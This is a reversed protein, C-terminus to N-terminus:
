KWGGKEWVKMTGVRLHGYLIVQFPMLSINKESSIHANQDEFIQLAKSFHDSDGSIIVRLVLQYNIFLWIAGPSPSSLHLTLFFSPSIYIQLPMFILTRPQVKELKLPFIDSDTETERGHLCLSFTVMQLCSPLEWWDGVMSASWDWVGRRWFQTLFLHRM